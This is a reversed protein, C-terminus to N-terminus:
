QGDCLMVVDFDLTPFHAAVDRRVVAPNPLSDVVARYRGGFDAAALREAVDFCDFSDGVLPSLVLGVKWAALREEDIEVHSARVVNMNDLDLLVAPILDGIALVTLSASGNSEGTDDQPRQARGRRQKDRM